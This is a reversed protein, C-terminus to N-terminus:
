VQARVNEGGLKEAGPFKNGMKRLRCAAYGPSYGVALAQMFHMRGPNTPLDLKLPGYKRM